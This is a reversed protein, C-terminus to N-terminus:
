AANPGVPGPFFGDQVNAPSIFIPHVRKVMTLTQSAGDRAILRNVYDVWRTQLTIYSGFGKIEWFMWKIGQILANENLLCTDDDNAFYRAFNTASGHVDVAANSTYEFVLQMQQALDFPPPWIRFSNPYNGTLNTDSYPGIKRFHRRPGTVVIGSRHWQDLQPSDPGLLEWRNTRDWMTRNIFWDFGPPMGYTDQAFQVGVGTVSSSNSTAMTMTVQTPSDVTAIRSSIPIGPGQVQFVYPQLGTTNPSINTIVTSNAAINGTVSIPPQAKIVFEWQMDTWEHMQRLEDIVRNALSAMQLTTADGSAYVSSAVPLGLELQCENIMNLLSQTM